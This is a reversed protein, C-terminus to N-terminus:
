GIVGVGAFGPYDEIREPVDGPDDPRWAPIRVLGPDLLPLGGFLAAIEPESRMRMAQPSRDRNYVAQAEGAGPQAQSSAHSIVLRSGPVAAAVYRGVLGAPDHEDGVFHLVSVLLVAVPQALDLGYRAVAADLVASPDLLDGALVGVRDHGDLLRQSHAVAVPDNDVYVVRAGPDCELAVDHVNGATPIGSGLDLFQRVGADCLHRVARRLFARNQQAIRPMDPLVALVREAFERDAAFNHSGGLYYDYVRAVSPRSIDIEPPSWHPDDTVAVVTAHPRV